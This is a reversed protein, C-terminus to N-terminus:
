LKGRKILELQAKKQRSPSNRDHLDNWLASDEDNSTSSVVTTTSTHAKEKDTIQNAKSIEGETRGKTTTREFIQLTKEGADKFKMGKAVYADFMDKMDPDSELEPNKGVTRDYDAQAAFMMAAEARTLPPPASVQDRRAPETSASPAAEETAAQAQENTMGLLRAQNYIFDQNSLQAEMDQRAKRERLMEAKMGAVESSEPTQAAESGSQSQDTPQNQTEVSVPAQEDAM